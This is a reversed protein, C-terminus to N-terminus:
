WVIFAPYIGDSGVVPDSLGSQHYHGAFVCLPYTIFEGTDLIKECSQWAVIIDPIGRHDKLVTTFQFVAEELFETGLDPFIKLLFKKLSNWVKYLSTSYLTKKYM